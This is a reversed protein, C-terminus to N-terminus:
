EDQARYNGSLKRRGNTNCIGGVVNNEQKIEVASFFGSLLSNHKGGNIEVQEEQTYPPGTMTTDPCKPLGMLDFEHRFLLGSGSGGGGAGEGEQEEESSTEQTACLPGPCALVALRPGRTRWGLSLFSKPM